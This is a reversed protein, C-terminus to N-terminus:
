TICTSVQQVVAGKPLGLDQPLHEVLFRQSERRGTFIVL